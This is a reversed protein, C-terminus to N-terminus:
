TKRTMHEKEVKMVSSLLCYEKKEYFRLTYNSIGTMESVEKITYTAM